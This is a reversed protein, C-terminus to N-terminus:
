PNHLDMINKIALEAYLIAPERAKTKILPISFKIGINQRHNKKNLQTFIAAGGLNFKILSNYKIGDKIYIM